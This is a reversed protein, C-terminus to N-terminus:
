ESDIDTPASMAKRKGSITTSPHHKEEYEALASMAEAVIHDKVM